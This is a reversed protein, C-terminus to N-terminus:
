LVHLLDFNNRVWKWPCRTSFTPEWRNVFVFKCFCYAILKASFMWSYSKQVVNNLSHPPFCFYLHNWFSENTPYDLSWSTVWVEFSCWFNEFNQYLMQANWQSYILMMNFIFSKGMSNVIWLLNYIFIDPSLATIKLTEMFKWCVFTSMKRKQLYFVFRFYTKM